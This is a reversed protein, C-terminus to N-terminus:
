FLIKIELKRQKLSVGSELLARQQPNLLIDGEFLSSDNNSYIPDSDSHKPIWFGFNPNFPETTPLSAEFPKIMPLTTAAEMQSAARNRNQKKWFPKRTSRTTWWPESTAQNGAAVEVLYIKGSIEQCFSIFMVLTWMISIKMTLQTEKEAKLPVSLLLKM